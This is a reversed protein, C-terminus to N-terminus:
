FAGPASPNEAESGLIGLRVRHGALKHTLPVRVPVVQDDEAPRGLQCTEGFGWLWLGGDAAIAGSVGIGASSQL